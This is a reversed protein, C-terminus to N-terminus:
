KDVTVILTNFFHKNPVIIIQLDFTFTGTQTFPYTLSKGLEIEKEGGLLSSSLFALGIDFHSFTMSDGQRVTIRNFRQQAPLLLFGEFDIGVQYLTTPAIGQPQGTPAPAIGQPQGTPAIGQPQGTPTPTPSPTESLDICTVKFESDPLGCSEGLSSDIIGTPAIGQQQVPQCSGLFCVMSLDVLFLSPNKKNM